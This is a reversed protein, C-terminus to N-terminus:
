TKQNDYPQKDPPEDPGCILKGTNDPGCCEHKSQEYDKGKETECDASDTRSYVSRVHDAVRQGLQEVVDLGAVLGQRTPSSMGQLVASAMGKGARRRRTSVGRHGEADHTNEDMKLLPFLRATSCSVTGIFRFDLSQQGFALRGEVKSLINEM